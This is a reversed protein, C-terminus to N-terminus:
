GLGSGFGIGFRFGFGFSLVRVSLAGLFSPPDTLLFSQSTVKPELSFANTEDEPEFQPSADSPPLPLGKCLFAAVRRLAV